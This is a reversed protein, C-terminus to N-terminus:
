CYCAIDLGKAKAKEIFRLAKKEKQFLVKLVGGEHRVYVTYPKIAPLRM